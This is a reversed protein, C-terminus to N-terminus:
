ISQTAHPFGNTEATKRRLFYLVCCFCSAIVRVNQPCRGINEAAQRQYDFHHHGYVQLLTQISMSLFGAAPWPDTGAQM